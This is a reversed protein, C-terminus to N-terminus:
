FDFDRTFSRRLTYSEVKYEVYTSDSVAEELRLFVEENNLKDAEKSLLLKVTIERERASDSTLDFPIVQQNSILVEDKAYISIRMNRAKMKDSVAEEQYFKFTVDTTSIVSTGGRLLTVNVHSIDSIRKKNIKIVPIVIEQLSAGGHVFKSGSGRQRLRNISNPIQVEVNGQLGLQQSTFKKL